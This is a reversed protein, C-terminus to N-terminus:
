AKLDFLHPQEQSPLVGEVPTIDIEVCPRDSYLKLARIVVIQSDDKWVVGNLADLQKIYNDLDPRTIPRLAGDLALQRKKFSFSRPVPLYVRLTVSLPVDYPAADEMAAQAQFRLADQYKRTHAPTYASVFSGGSRTHISRFRPRGAPVPDGTLIIKM